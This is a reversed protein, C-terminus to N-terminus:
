VAAALRDLAARDRIRVTHRDAFDIIGDRTLTRTARSVAELSLGLYDAIDSRSMPVPVTTSRLTCPPHQLLMTLFMAFRGAADRRGLVIARRGAERLQHTLKVFLQFQLAADHLLM